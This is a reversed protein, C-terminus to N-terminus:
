KKRGSERLFQVTCPSESVASPMDATFEKRIQKIDFVLWADDQYIPTLRKWQGVIKDRELVVYDLTGFQTMAAFNSPTRGRYIKAMKEGIWGGTESKRELPTGYLLQDRLCYEVMRSEVFPFGTGGYVARGATFPLVSTLAGFPVAFTSNSGTNAIAWTVIGSTEAPMKSWPKEDRFQTLGTALAILVVLVAYRTQRSHCWMRASQCGHKRWLRENLYVVATTAVFWYGLMSLRIPGFQVLPKFSVLYVAVYQLVVFSIYLGLFLLASRVLNSMRAQYGLLAFTGLLLCVLAFAFKSGQGGMSGYEAPLYHSPHAQFVYIDRFLDAELTAVPAFYLSLALVPMLYGTALEFALAKARKTKDQSDSSLEAVVTLFYGSLAVAPHLLTAILLYPNLHLRVRRQASVVAAWIGFLLAFTQPHSYNNSPPWWAVSFYGRVSFEALSKLPIHDWIVLLVFFIALLEAGPQVYGRPLTSLSICTVLLCAWALPLAVVFFVKWFYFGAFWDGGLLKGTDIILTSFIHRPSAEHYSRVLFDQSLFAQDQVNQFYGVMDLGPGQYAVGDEVLLWQCIGSVVILTYAFLLLIPWHREFIKKM